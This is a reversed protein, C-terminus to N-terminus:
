TLRPKKKLHNCMMLLGQCSLRHAKMLWNQTRRAVQALDVVLRVAEVKLHSVDLRAMMIQILASRKKFSAYFIKGQVNTSAQILEDIQENTMDTLAKVKDAKTPYDKQFQEIISM